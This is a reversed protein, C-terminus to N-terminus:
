YSCKFQIVSNWVVTAVYAVLGLIKVGLILLHGM